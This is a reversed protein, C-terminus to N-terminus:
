APILTVIGESEWQSLTTGEVTYIHPDDDSGFGYVFQTLSPEGNWGASHTALVGYTGPEIVEGPEGDVNTVKKLVEIKLLQPM